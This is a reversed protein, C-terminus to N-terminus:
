INYFELIAYKRYQIKLLCLSKKNKNQCEQWKSVLQKIKKAKGFLRLRLNLSFPPLGM